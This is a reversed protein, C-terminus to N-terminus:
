RFIATLSWYLISRKAWGTKGNGLLWRRLSISAEQRSATAGWGQNSKHSNWWTNHKQVDGSMFVSPQAPSPPGQVQGVSPRNDKRVWEHINKKNGSESPNWASKQQEKWSSLAAWSVGNPLLSWCPLLVVLERWTVALAWLLSRALGPRASGVFWSWNWRTGLWMTTEASPFMELFVSHRPRASFSSLTPKPWYRPADSSFAPRLSELFPLSQEGPGSPCRFGEDLGSWPVSLLSELIRTSEGKSIVHLLEKWSLVRLFEGFFSTKCVSMMFPDPSGWGSRWSVLLKSVVNLFMKSSLFAPRCGWLSGVTLPETSNSKGLKEGIAECSLQRSFNMGSWLSPTTSVSEM